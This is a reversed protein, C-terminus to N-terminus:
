NEITLSPLEYRIEPIDEQGLMSFVRVFWRITERVFEPVFRFIADLRRSLNSISTRLTVTDNSLRDLNRNTETVENRLQTIQTTLENIRQLLQQNSQNLQRIETNTSTISNRVNNLGTDLQSFNQNCIKMNNIYPNYSTTSVPQNCINLTLTMGKYRAYDCGCKSSSNSCGGCPTVIQESPLSEILRQM